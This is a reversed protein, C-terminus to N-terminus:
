SAKKTQGRVNSVGFLPINKDLNGAIYEIQAADDAHKLTDEMLPDDGERLAWGFDILVPLNDNPIINPARIDRHRIKHRQLDALLAWLGSIFLERDTIEEYDVWKTAIEFVPGDIFHVPKVVYDSDIGSLIEFERILCTRADDTMPRVRKIALGDRKEITSHFYKGYKEHILM